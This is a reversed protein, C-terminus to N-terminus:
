AADQADDARPKRRVPSLRYQQYWDAEAQEFQRLRQSARLFQSTSGGKDPHAAVKAQFLRRRTRVSYHDHAAISIRVSGQQVWRPRTRTKGKWSQGLTRMKDAHVARGADSMGSPGYRARRTAWVKVQSKKMPRLASANGYLRRHYARTVALRRCVRCYRGRTTRGTTEPTWAHGRQCRATRGREAHIVATEIWQGPWHQKIWHIHYCINAQERGLRQAIEGVKLRQQQRLAVLQARFTLVSQSDHRM